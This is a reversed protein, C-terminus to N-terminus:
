SNCDDCTYYFVRVDSKYIDPHLEIKESFKLLKLIDEPFCKIILFGKDVLEECLKLIEREEKYGKKKRTPDHEKRKCGAIIIEINFNKIDISFIYLLACLSIYSAIIQELAKRCKSLPNTKLEVLVIKGNSCVIVGDCNKKLIESHFVINNFEALLKGLDVAFSNIRYSFEKCDKNKAKPEKIVGRYVETDKEKEKIVGHYVEANKLIELLAKLKEENIM